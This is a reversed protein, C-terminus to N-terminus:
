LGAIGQTRIVGDDGTTVVSGEPLAEDAEVYGYRVRVGSSGVAGGTRGGLRPRGRRKTELRDDRNGM